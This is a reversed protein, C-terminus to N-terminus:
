IRFEAQRMKKFIVIKSDAQYKITKQPQILM